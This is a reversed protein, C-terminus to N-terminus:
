IDDETEDMYAHFKGDPLWARFRGMVERWQTYVGARIDNAPSFGWEDAWERLTPNHYVSRVGLTVASMVDGTEPREGALPMLGFPICFERGGMHLTVDFWRMDPDPNIENAPPTARAESTCTIGDAAIRESLLMDTM